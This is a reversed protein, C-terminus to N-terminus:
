LYPYTFGLTPMFVEPYFKCFDLTFVPFSSFILLVLPAPFDSVYCLAERALRLVQSRVGAGMHPTVHLLTCRYDPAPSPSVPPYMSCVQLGPAPSPACSPVYLESALRASDALELNLSLGPGLFIYHFTVSFSM